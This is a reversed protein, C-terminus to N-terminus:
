HGGNRAWRRLGIVVRREDHRTWASPRTERQATVSKARVIFRALADQFSRKDLVNFLLKEQATRGLM